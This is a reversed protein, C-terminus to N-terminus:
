AEPEKSGETPNQHIWRLANVIDAIAQDAKASMEAARLGEWKAPLENKLHKRLLGKIKEITDLLWAEFEAARIYAKEERDNQFRIKRLKEQDIEEKTSAPLTGSRCDIEPHAALFHKWSPVHHDGNARARPADPHQKVIRPFSARHLGVLKGLAEYSSVWEEPVAFGGASGSPEAFQAILQQEKRTLPQNKLAKEIARRVANTSNKALIKEAQDKTLIPTEAM